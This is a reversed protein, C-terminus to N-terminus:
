NYMRWRLGFRTAALPLPYSPTYYFGKNVYDQNIHQYKFFIIAKKIQGSAFIEIMPYNGIEKENQLYFARSVPNYTNGYYATNYYMDAGLQMRMAKKFLIAEVYYKLMVGVVPLRIVDSSSKQYIIRNDFYLKWIQFVKALEINTVVFTKNSQEPLATSNYYVWNSLLYQKLTLSFNNRFTRTQIGSQWNSVNVKNFNNHWVFPNSRFNMFSFDPTSSTNGFGLSLLFKSANFTGKSLIKYDRSNFGALCYSANAQVSLSNPKESIQEYEAGLIINNYTYSVDRQHIYIYKHSGYFDLFRKVKQATDQKSISLAFKNYFQGYYVSDYFIDEQAFYKNPFLVSSTDGKINDFHFSQEEAKITHILRVRYEPQKLSDPVYKTFDYYQKVYVARNKFRTQSSNLVVPASKHTGTLGEFVSDNLLGGSEDTVGKNWTINGLLYYKSNKSNYSNFFQTHYTSTYQSPFFGKSTIRNYDIGFNYRPTVNQSHKAKLFLLDNKGQAYTFDSYPTKTDYYTCEEPLFYYAAFPNLGQYFDIERNWDFILSRGPTGINGLDQFLGYKSHMPNFIETKDLSTDLFNPNINRDLNIEKFLKTLYKSAKSSNVDQALVTSYGLSIAFAVYFLNRIQL